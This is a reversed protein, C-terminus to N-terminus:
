GEPLPAKPPAPKPPAPKRIEADFAGAVFSRAPDPLCLYIKGSIHANTAQGFMVKLAYGRSIKETVPQQQQDKWRLVVRPARPREPAIEVTKGSLEEGQHANLSLSVGLDWPWSKGQGLSLLGGRLIAKECHFGSGHVSGAATTDPLVVNALDLTWTINTPVPYNTNLVTVAIPPPLPATAGTPPQSRVFKRVRDRFVYLAAGAACLLVLLAILAPISSRRSTTQRPGLQSADSAPRPKGVQAASLIFKSDSSAPAQPVVIKQFCTPCEIQGGSTTSDATIHQGCVPCAFKFESMAELAVIGCAAPCSLAKKATVKLAFRRV